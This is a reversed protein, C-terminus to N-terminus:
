LLDDTVFYQSAREKIKEENKIFNKALMSYCDWFKVYDGQPNNFKFDMRLDNVFKDTKKGRSGTFPFAAHNDPNYRDYIIIDREKVESDPIMGPIEGAAKARRYEKEAASEDWNKVWKTNCGAKEMEDHSSLIFNGFAIEEGIGYRKLIDIAYTTGGFPLSDRFKVFAKRREESNTMSMKPAKMCFDKFKSQLTCIIEADQITKKWFSKVTTQKM